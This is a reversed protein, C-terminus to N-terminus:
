KTNITYNGCNSEIIEVELEKQKWWIWIFYNAGDGMESKWSFDIKNFGYDEYTHPYYHPGPQDNTEAILVAKNAIRKFEQIIGDIDKIHDLVSCTTVVDYNCCHRLYSEDGLQVSPLSHKFIATVVNTKSIDIGHTVIGKKHLVSLHKGSGFGFDLVHVPNLILIENILRESLPSLNDDAEYGMYFQKADTM